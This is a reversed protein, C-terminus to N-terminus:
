AFGSPVLCYQDLMSQVSTIARNASQGWDAWQYEVDDVRKRLLADETRGGTQQERSMQDVMLLIARRWDAAEEETFGHTYTVTIGAYETTWCGDERYLMRPIDASVVYSSSDVTVGDEVVSAVSGIKGTPLFLRSDGPGDVTVVDGVAVPSVPWGTYNRARVLAAGLIDVVVADSALLRGRTFTEVDAPTLEGVAQLV